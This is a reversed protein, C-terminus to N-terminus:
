QYTEKDPFTFYGEEEAKDLMYDLLNVLGELEDARPDLPSEMMALLIDRQEYLLDFDVDEVLIDARM